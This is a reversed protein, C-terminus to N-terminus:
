VKNQTWHNLSARESPDVQSTEMKGMRGCSLPLDLM